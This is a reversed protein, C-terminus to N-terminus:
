LAKCLNREDTSWIAFEWDSLTVGYDMRMKFELCEDRSQQM